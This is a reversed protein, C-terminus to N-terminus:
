KTNRRPPRAPPTFGEPGPDPNAPVQPGMPPKLLGSVFTGLISLFFIAISKQWDEIPLSAIGALAVGITASLASLITLFTQKDM